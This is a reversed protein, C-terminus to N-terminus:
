TDEGFLGQYLGSRGKSINTYNQFLTKEGLIDVESTTYAMQPLLQFFSFLSQIPNLETEMMEPTLYSDRQKCSDLCCTHSFPKLSSEWAHLFLIVPYSISLVPPLSIKFFFFFLLVGIVLYFGKCDTSCSIGPFSFFLLLCSGPMVTNAVSIETQNIDSKQSCTYHLNLTNKFYESAWLLLEVATALSTDELMLHSLANDSQFLLLTKQM